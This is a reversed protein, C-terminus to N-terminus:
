GKWALYALGAAGLILIVMNPDIGAGGAGPPRASGWRAQTIPVGTDPDVGGTLEGTLARVQALGAANPDIIGTDLDPSQTIGVGRLIADPYFGGDGAGDVPTGLAFPLNSLFGSFASKSASNNTDGTLDFSLNGTPTPAAVSPLGFTLPARGASASPPTLNSYLSQIDFGDPAFTSGPQTPFTPTRVAFM